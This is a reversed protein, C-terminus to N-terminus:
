DRPAACSSRLVLQTPVVVHRSRHSPAAIRSVLLAAMREGMEFRPARITSLAPTQQYRIEETDGFGLLSMDGPVDLRRCRLAHLVGLMVLDDGAVIATDGRGRELLRETSRIGSEFNDAGEVWEVAAGLRARRLATVYGAHRRAFWPLEIDGVFCIRRHGLAILHAVGRETGGADDMSLVDGGTIGELSGSYGSHHLVFPVRLQALRDLLPRHNIGVLIVGDLSGREVVIPPLRLDAARTRAGYELHTYIVSYGEGACGKMVGNLTTVNYLHMTQRNSMVFGVTHSANRALRRASAHPRYDYRRIVQWVRARTMHSVNRDENLVRSVTGTGVGAARAIQSITVSPRRGSM